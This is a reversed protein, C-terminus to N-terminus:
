IWKNTPGRSPVLQRTHSSAADATIRRRVRRVGTFGSTVAASPSVRNTWALLWFAAVLLVGTGTFYGVGRVLMEILYSVVACYAFVLAPSDIRGHEAAVAIARLRRAARWASILYVLCLIVGVGGFESVLKSLTFGGDRLNLSDDAISHILEAAGVTTGLVGLQQFGLGFGSSKEWSEAILQWGQLYVLTSLNQDDAGFDLRSTFYSIDFQTAVLTLAAVFALITWFRLSVFAVLVCGAALTLNELLVASALGVFLFVIRQRGKATVCVYMLVPIFALAFHSPESFPFVPKSFPQPSPSSWGIAGLAAVICMAIFCRHMATHVTAAPVSRLKRALAAGAEILLALPILSALSRGTEVPLFFAAIALHIAVFLCIVVMLGTTRIRESGSSQETSAISRRNTVVLISTAAVATGLAMSSALGLYHLLAPLCLLLVLQLTTQTSQRTTRVMRRKLERVYDHGALTFRYDGAM